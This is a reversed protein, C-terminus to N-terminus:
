RQRQCLYRCDSAAAARGRDLGPSITEPMLLIFEEGGYRGFTAKGCTKCWRLAIERLVADGSPPRLYRQYEQTTSTSCSCRLQDTSAPRDRLKRSALEIFRRRNYVHTLSDRMALEELATQAAKIETIDEV